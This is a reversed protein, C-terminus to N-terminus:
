SPWKEIKFEKINQDIINILKNSIDYNSRAIFINKKEILISISNKDLYDQILPNIFNLFELISKNKKANLEKLTKSEEVKFKNLEKQLQKFQNNFESDSIIKKKSILSDKKETLAKRKDTLKKIEAKELENLKNLLKKGSISKSIVNDINIYAITQDAFSSPVFFIFFILIQFLRIM